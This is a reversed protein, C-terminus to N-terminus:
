QLFLLTLIEFPKAVLPVHGDYFELEELVNEMLDTAFVKSFNLSTQVKFATKRGASEYLRVIMGTHNESKKVTELVIYDSSEIFCSKESSIRFGDQESSTSFFSQESPLEGAHSSMERSILPYNSLYGERIVGGSAFNGKHPYISYTFKQKGMDGYHLAKYETDNKDLMEAGPKKQSRLWTIELTQEKVCYGYKANSLLAIGQVEDSFKPVGQM